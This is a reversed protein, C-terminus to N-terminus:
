NSVQGPQGNGEFAWGSAPVSRSPWSLERGGVGSQLLHLTLPHAARVFSRQWEVTLLHRALLM